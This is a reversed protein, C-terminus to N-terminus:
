RFTSGCLNELHPKVVPTVASGCFQFGDWSFGVATRDPEHVQQAFKRL